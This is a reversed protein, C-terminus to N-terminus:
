ADRSPNGDPNLPDFRRVGLGPPFPATWPAARLVAAADALGQAWRARMTAAGFAYDKSHGQPRAPRYVLEVVDVTTICAMRRLREAEPAERLAEPLRELLAGAAVRLDHVRKFGDLNARTRSSYRIDKEREQAEPLTRPVPGRAPFVDVEFALRHRRPETELVYQLPTNSVLGGDWYHTGDIEVAPFGPPLAGSAMIHEARIRTAPRGRRPATDFFTLNGTAVEVAGVSLRMPGANIRDFDVLRELTAKLAGTEYFSEPLTHSFWAHAPRPAFFGSQGFLLASLAGAGFPEPLHRLWQPDLAFPQPYGTIAEWFARLAAVRKEPPNGAILAGNIAGISIGAIWDPEWPSGALGEYVGAQYSGLAGGGQLLLSVERRVPPRGRDRAM